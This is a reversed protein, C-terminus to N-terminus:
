PTAIIIPIEKQGISLAAICRKYGEILIPPNVHVPKVAIPTGRPKDGTRLLKIVEQTLERMEKRADDIGSMLSEAMKGLTGYKTDYAEDGGILLSFQKLEEANVTVRSFHMQRTIGYDNIFKSRTGECAKILMARENDDLMTTDFNSAALKASLAPPPYLYNKSFVSVPNAEAVAWELMAEDYTLEHNSM